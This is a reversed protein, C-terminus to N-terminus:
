FENSNQLCSIKDITQFMSTLPTAIKNFNRIFRKYFNQFSLFVQIDRVLQSKSWTKITKIKKEEM